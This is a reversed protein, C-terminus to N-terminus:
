KLRGYKEQYAIVKATLEVIEKRMDAMTDHLECGECDPRRHATSNCYACSSGANGNWGCIHGGGGCKPCDPDTTPPNLLAM